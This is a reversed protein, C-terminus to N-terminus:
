IYTIEVSIEELKNLNDELNKKNRKIGRVALFKSERQLRQRIFSEKCQRYEQLENEEQRLNELVRYEVGPFTM